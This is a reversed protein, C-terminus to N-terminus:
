EQLCDMYDKIEKRLMRVTMKSGFEEIYGQTEEEYVYAHANKKEFMAIKLTIGKQEYKNKIFNILGNKYIVSMSFFPNGSQKKILMLRAAFPQQAIPENSYEDNRVCTRLLYDTKSYTYLGLKSSEAKGEPYYYTANSTQTMFDVFIDDVYVIRGNYLRVGKRKENYDTMKFNVIEDSTFGLYRAYAIFKNSVDKINNVYGLFEDYTFFKQNLFEIPVLTDIIGRVRNLDYPNGLNNIPVLHEKECWSYYDKLNGSIGKLFDRSKSNFKKFLELIQEGNFLSLDVSNGDRGEVTACMRFIIRITNITTLEYKCNELYREKQAENYM